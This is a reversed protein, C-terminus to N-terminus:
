LFNLFDASPVELYSPQTLVPFGDTQVCTNKFYALPLLQPSFTPLSHGQTNQLEDGVLIFRQKTM